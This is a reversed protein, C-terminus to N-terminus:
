QLSSPGLAEDRNGLLCLKDYLGAKLLEILFRDIGREVLNKSNRTDLDELDFWLLDLKVSEPCATEPIKDNLIFTVAEMQGRLFDADFLRPFHSYVAKMDSIYNKLLQQKGKETRIKKRWQFYQYEPSGVDVSLLSLESALDADSDSEQPTTPPIPPIRALHENIAKQTEKSVQFCSKNFLEDLHRKYMAPLASLSPDLEVILVVFRGSQFYFARTAPDFIKARLDKVHEPRLVGATEELFERLATDRASRDYPEAKGGFICWGRKKETGLLLQIRTSNEAPRRLYCLLGAAKYDGPAESMQVLRTAGCSARSSRQTVLTNRENRENRKHSRLLAPHANSHLSRTGVVSSLFRM